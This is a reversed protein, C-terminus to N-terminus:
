GAPRIDLGFLEEFRAYYATDDAAAGLSVWDADSMRERGSVLHEGGWSTRYRLEPRDSTVAHHIVEAVEFPDTAQAIGAAYMQFMRRYHDDYAGTGNPADASKAFIASRTVGPEVVVVRIGFPAVEQALGESLGELAWKSAVYPSQALAAVRGAISTINVIAGSRRARMQPLVAQACRVAGCLNVNMIELYTAPETEEVVGNGGIGANNVLVDVRGADDLIEGFGRRVSEDDAVDLEVLRVDVAREAAMAQLKGARDRNRVTGYVEFGRTALHVATARGIGSNAGTVVSVLAM